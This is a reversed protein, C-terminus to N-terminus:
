AESVGEGGGESLRRAKRRGMLQWVLFLILGFLIVSLFTITRALLTVSLAQPTTFVYILLGVLGTEVFGLGAPTLPLATLLAAVLAAFIVMFPLPWGIQDGLGLAYIVMFLCGAELAWIGLSLIALVPLQRFSGFTGEHFMGYISKIRSPLRESYRGGLFYMVVLFVVVFLVLGLGVSMIINITPPTYGHWVVLASIVILSFIIVVDIFREAVVTGMTKSLSANTDETFLYARYADGLRAYMVSNVFWSLMVMGTLRWTSPLDDEGENDFGANRLLLRWRFARLPFTAYYSIFALLYLYPSCSKITEWTATFDIDLRTLVFYLIAIALAFSILTRINLFRRRLSIEETQERNEPPIESM